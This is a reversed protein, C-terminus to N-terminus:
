HVDRPNDREGDCGAQPHTLPLDEAEDLLAEAVVLDSGAEADGQGRDLVVNM